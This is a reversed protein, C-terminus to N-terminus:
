EKDEVYDTGHAPKVFHLGQEGAASGAEAATTEGKSLFSAEPGRRAAANRELLEKQKETWLPIPQRMLAVDGLPRISDLSDRQFQMPLKSDQFDQFEPDDKKVLEWGENLDRRLIGEYGDGKYRGWKYAYGPKPNRVNLAEYARRHNGLTKGSQDLPRLDRRDGGGSVPM